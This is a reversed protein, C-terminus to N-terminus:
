TVILCDPTSVVVHQPQSAGTGSSLQTPQTTVIEGEIMESSLLQSGFPGTKIAGPERKAAFKLSIAEWNAPIEGLWPIGSDKRPADPDLGQTVAHGILAARREQLLKILRRQEAILADLRATQRDLFAAIARQEALPPLNVTLDGVQESNARPMKTGYTSSNVTDIFGDSLLYYFLFRSEVDDKPRLVLLETTGVGDFNAHVVKALYPRLKGFLVDDERFAVVNSAANEALDDLLLRGTGSEINELGLYLSEKPKAELKESSEPAAYKLRRTEWHEPIEGLWEVGSGKYEPYPQWRSM